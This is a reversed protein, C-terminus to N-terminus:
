ELLKLLFFVLIEWLVRFLSTRLPGVSLWNHRNNNYKDFRRGFTDIKANLGSNTTKLIQYKQLTQVKLLLSFFILSLESFIKNMIKACFLQLTDKFTSAIGTTIYLPPIHTYLLSM